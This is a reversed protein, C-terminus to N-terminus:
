GPTFTAARREMAAALDYSLARQFPTNHGTFKQAAASGVELVGFSEDVEERMAVSLLSQVDQARMSGIACVRGCPGLSRFHVLQSTHWALGATTVPDAAQRVGSADAGHRGTGAQLVFTQQDARFRLVAAFQERVGVAIVKCAEQAILDLDDYQDAFIGFWAALSMHRFASHADWEIDHGDRRAPSAQRM